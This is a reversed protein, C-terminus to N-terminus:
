SGPPPAAGEPPPAQGGGGPPKQPGDGGKGKDPGGGVAQEIAEVAVGSLEQIQKLIELLQEM